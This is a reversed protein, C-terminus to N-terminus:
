QLVVKVSEPAIGMSVLAQARHRSQYIVYTAGDDAEFVMSAGSTADFEADLVQTLSRMFEPAIPSSDRIAEGSQELPVPADQKARIAVLDYGPLVDAVVVPQNAAKTVADIAAIFGIFNETLAAALVPNLDGGVLQGVRFVAHGAVMNRENQQM